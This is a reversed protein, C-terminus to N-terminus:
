KIKSVEEAVLQEFDTLHESPGLIEGLNVVKQGGLNSGYKNDVGPGSMLLELLDEFHFDAVTQFIGLSSQLDIPEERGYKKVEGKGKTIGEKELVEVVRKFGGKFVTPIDGSADVILRNPVGIPKQQCTHLEHMMNVIGDQPREENEDPVYDEGSNKHKKFSKLRKSIGEQPLNLFLSFDYEPFLAETKVIEDFDMKNLVCQYVAHTMASSRKTLVVKGESVAKKILKIHYARDLTYLLAGVERPMDIEFDLELEKQIQKRRLYMEVLFGGLTGYNPFPVMCVDYGMKGLAYGLLGWQTGKGAKDPGVVAGLIGKKAFM